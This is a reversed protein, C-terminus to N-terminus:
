NTIVALEKGVKIFKELAFELDARSHAASIQVRIRAQGKPVVPYFFGVAFIGEDLLRAAIKQALKADGLMIPVIPHTGPKITFGAQSIKERFYATNETLTKRSDGSSELLDITKLAASVIPPALSNSFLYPRSRQRLLDIINKRGTTFGGSAGGLAKGLTSTIVDVRDQVGCLEPTGRGTAGVFGTAHSDDVM